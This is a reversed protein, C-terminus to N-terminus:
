TRTGPLVGDRSVTVSRYRNTASRAIVERYIDGVLHESLVLPMPRVPHAVLTTHHNPV